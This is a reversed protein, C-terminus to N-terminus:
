NFMIKSVFYVIRKKDVNKEEKNKIKQTGYAIFYNDFWFDINSSTWKVEDTDYKTEFSESKEDKIIKGNKDFSKTFIRNSSSFAMATKDSSNEIVSIFRKVHFPKYASWLEFTQDWVKKGQLDFKVIVAHTYQYGDFVQRSRTVTSTVGNVTQTTTYYETRYTAYYAEGILLYGDDKVLIDHAAINYNLVLEKGQEEKKEKKKEIKDQQKQSLYTTFNKLDLFNYYNIGKVSNGVTTCFYIGQSTSVGTTSYTGTFVYKGEGVKCSTIDILNKDISSTLNYTEKKNGKEDLRIVYTDTNRKDIKVKAYLMIENSKELLQFNTLYFSKPKVGEIGLAFQRQIGTKWNIAFLNYAGNVFSKFYAFDGLVAMESINMKKPLIGDVVISKATEVNITVLSFEGNRGKFLTYNQKSDTFTADEYFKRNLSVSETKSLVLDKTYIDYKWIQKNDEKEDKVSRMMFGQKGFTYIQENGYGNQLEIEIRRIFSVQAIAPM